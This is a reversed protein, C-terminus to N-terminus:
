YDLKKESLFRSMLGAVQQNNLDSFPFHTNGHIGIDPLHVVTVDGGHRNVTERLKRAMELRVRWGDQGPNDSPEEPIFDGYFIIIPAISCSSPTGSKSPNARWTRKIAGPENSSAYAPRTSCISSLTFRTAFPPSWGIPDESGTRAVREADAVQYL